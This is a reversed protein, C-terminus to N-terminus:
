RSRRVLWAMVAAGLLMALTSPEPVSGEGGGATWHAALIAADKDNVAGDWNFDGDAWAAGSAMLWNAGLISADEDDVVQNRNADGPFPWVAAWDIAADFLSVGDSTLSEFGYDSLFFFVRRGDALAPMGPSGDGLLEAGVDAAFIMQREEEGVTWTAVQDVGAGLPLVGWQIGTDQTITNWHLVDVTGSLGAALPHSSDVIDIQLPFNALNGDQDKADQSVFFNGVTPPNAGDAARILACEWTVVGVPSDEYKGRTASSGM